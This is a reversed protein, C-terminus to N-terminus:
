QQMRAARCRIHCCRESRVRRSPPSLVDKFEECHISNVIAFISHPFFSAVPLSSCPASSSGVSDTVWVIVVKVVQFGSCTSVCDTRCNCRSSHSDDVIHVTYGDPCERTLSDKAVVDLLTHHSPLHPDFHTSAM